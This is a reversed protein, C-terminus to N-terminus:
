ELDLPVEAVGRKPAFERLAKFSFGSAAYSCISHVSPGLVPRLNESLDAGEGPYEELPLRGLFCNENQYYFTAIVSGRGPQAGPAMVGALFPIIDRKNVYHVYNPGDPYLLGITGATEADVLGLLKQRYLYRLPFASFLDSSLLTLGRGVMFGSQSMAFVLFRRGNTVRRYAESRVTMVVKNKSDLFKFGDEFVNESPANFIGILPRKKVIAISRLRVDIHLSESNAGNVVFLLEQGTDYERGVVPVDDSLVFDPDYLCGNAGIFFGDMDVDPTGYVAASPDDCDPGSAFVLPAGAGVLFIFVVQVVQLISARILKNM